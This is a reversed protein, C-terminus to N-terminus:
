RQRLGDRVAQAAAGRGRRSLSAAARRSGRGSYRVAVGSPTRSVMVSVDPPLNKVAMPAVVAEIRAPSQAAAAQIRRLFDPLESPKM